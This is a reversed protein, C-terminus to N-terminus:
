RSYHFRAAARLSVADSATFEFLVEIIVVGLWMALVILHAVHFPEM